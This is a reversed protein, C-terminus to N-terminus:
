KCLVLVKTTGPATTDSTAPNRSTYFTLAKFPLGTPFDFKRTAGATAYLMLDPETTGVTPTDRNDLFFKTYGAHNGDSNVLTISYISGGAGLTDATLTTGSATEQVIKYSSTNAQFGHVTLAM